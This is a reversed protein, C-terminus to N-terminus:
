ERLLTYIDKLLKYLGLFYLIKRLNRKIKIKWTDEFYKKIFRERDLAILDQMFIKRKNNIKVSFFMEHVNKTLLDAGIDKYKFNSKIEEFINKGKQTHILVRTTGKDDDFDKAILGTIFCDWITFDSVRYRKKFACEYCSPRDCIDSFFARLMIDSEVGLHGLDGGRNDRITMQSYKYGYYKKDRFIINKINNGYKKRQVELYKKWVLPSPVAHCVVDVTILKNYDKKLYKKLGEIQCPTGSFCVWRNEDLFKKAQKFTEGINSQVYKSNRYLKLDIENEVYSHVVNLNEDYQVGFVGKKELVYKAIATFAGGATSEERIKEDKNQVLYGEQEFVKEEVKNIIPCVNECLGCNICLDKNIKPYLFGERDAKMEICNKPCISYCASCGCCNKKDKIEIM